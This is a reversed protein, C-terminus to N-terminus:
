PRPRCSPPRIATFCPFCLSRSHLRFVLAVEWPGNWSRQLAAKRLPFGASGMSAELAFRHFIWELLMKGSATLCSPVMETHGKRLSLGCRNRRASRCGEPLISEPRDILRILVAITVNEDQVKISQLYPNSFCNEQHRQDAHRQAAHRQDAHLQVPSVM